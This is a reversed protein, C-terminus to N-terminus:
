KRGGEIVGFRVYNELTSKANSLKIRTELDTKDKETKEYVFFMISFLADLLIKEHEKKM